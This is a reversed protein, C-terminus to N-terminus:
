ILCNLRAPAPLFLAVYVVSPEGCVCGCLWVCVFVCLAAHPTGQAKARKVQEAVSVGWNAPFNLAQAAAGSSGYKAVLGRGTPFLSVCVCVGVCVVCLVGVCVIYVLACSVFRFPLLLLAIVCYCCMLSLSDPASQYFAFAGRQFSTVAAENLVM